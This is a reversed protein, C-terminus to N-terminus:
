STRRSSSPSRSRAALPRHAVGLVRRARGPRRRVDARRPDADGPRPHHGRRALAAPPRRAPDIRAPRRRVARARLAPGARRHPVADVRPASSVAARPDLPEARGDARRLPLLGAVHVGRADPRRLGQRRRAQRVADGRRGDRAPPRDADEDDDVQRLRQVRPLRLDRRARHHFEGREGGHVERVPADPEQRRHGARLRDRRAAPHDPRRRRRTEGRAVPRRLDRGPERHGDKAQAGRAHRHRPDAGADMAILWDFRDAEDMYATSVLVSM